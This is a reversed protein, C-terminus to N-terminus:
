IILIFRSGGCVWSQYPEPILVMSSKLCSPYILATSIGSIQLNM